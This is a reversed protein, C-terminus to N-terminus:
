RVGGVEEKGFLPSQDTQRAEARRLFARVHNSLSVVPPRLVLVLAIVLWSALSVGWVVALVGAASHIKM